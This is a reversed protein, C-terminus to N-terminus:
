HTEKVKGNSQSHLPCILTHKIGLLHILDAILENAFERGNDTIIKLSMSHLCVYKFLSSASTNADPQPIAYLHLYGTFIDVIALIHSNGQITKNPGPTCDIQIVLGLYQINYTPNLETHLQATKTTIQCELYHNYYAKIYTYM